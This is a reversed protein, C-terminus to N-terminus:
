DCMSRIFIRDSNEKLLRDTIMNVGRGSGSPFYGPNCLRRIENLRDFGEITMEDSCDIELIRNQTTARSEPLHNGLASPRVLSTKWCEAEPCRKVHRM